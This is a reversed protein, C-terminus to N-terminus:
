LGALPHSGCGLPACNAIHVAVIAVVVAVAIGAIILVNRTTHSKKNLQKVSTIDDFALQRDATGSNVLNFGAASVEGREGRLTQKNKLRVEIRTGTPMASIESAVSEAALAAPGVQTVMLLTLTFSLAQRM